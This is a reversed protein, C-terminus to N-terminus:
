LLSSPTQIQILVHRIHVAPDATMAAELIGHELMKTENAAVGHDCAIKLLGNAFSVVHVSSRLDPLVAADLFDSVAQVVSAARVQPAIGARNVAHKLLGKISLM